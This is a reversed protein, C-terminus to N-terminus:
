QATHGPLPLSRPPVPSSQVISTTTTAHALLRDLVRDLSEIADLHMKLIFCDEGTVRHCESINATERVLEVVRQLQGPMPRVRVIAMIPLGLSKPDIDLRYGIIVGSDELRQLRERVAPASMGVRRALQSIPLRPDAQLARLLGLNTPDTILSKSRNNTASNPKM